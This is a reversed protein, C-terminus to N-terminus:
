AINRIIIILFSLIGILAYVLALIFGESTLKNIAKSVQDFRWVPLLSLILGGLLITFRGIVKTQPWDKLPSLDYHVFIAWCAGVLIATTGLASFKSQRFQSTLFMGLFVLILTIFISELLAFAQIYAVTGIVDWIDLRLRLAPIERFLNFFAWAQIAVVSATFINQTSQRSPLRNRLTAIM